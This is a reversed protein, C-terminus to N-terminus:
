EPFHDKMSSKLELRGVVSQIPPPTKSTRASNKIGPVNTAKKPVEPIIVPITSYNKSIEM